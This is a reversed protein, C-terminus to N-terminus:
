FYDEIEKNRFSKNIEKRQQFFPSLFIISIFIEM